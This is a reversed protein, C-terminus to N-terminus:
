GPLANIKYFYYKTLFNWKHGIWMSKNMKNNRKSWIKLVMNSSTSQATLMNKTFSHAVLRWFEQSVDKYAKNEIIEEM